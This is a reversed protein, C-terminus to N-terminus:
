GVKPTIGISELTGLWVREPGLPVQNRPRRPTSGPYFLRKAGDPNDKLMRYYDGESLWGSGRCYCQMKNPYQSCLPCLVFPLAHAIDTLLTQLKELATGLKESGRLPIEKKQWALIVSQEILAIDDRTKGALEFEPILTKPVVNGLGDRVDEPIPKGRYPM